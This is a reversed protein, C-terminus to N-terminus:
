LYISPGELGMAGGTGLTAVAAIMRHALDRLRLPTRQHFSELYSDATSPSLGRGPGRLWLTAVALGVGPAFALLWLPLPAVGRDFIVNVTLREFGAVALGTAFGVLAAM